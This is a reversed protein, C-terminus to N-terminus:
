SPSSVINEADWVLIVFQCELKSDFVESSPSAALGLVYIWDMKNIQILNCERDIRQVSCRTSGVLQGLM